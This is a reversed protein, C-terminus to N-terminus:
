SHLCYYDQFVTILPNDIHLREGHNVVTTFGNLLNKYIGWLTRLAKPVQLVQKITADNNAHIDPGWETYSRYIRNGLMPFLNFDLHDHSNILGPFALADDFVITPKDGPGAEAASPAVSVIRDKIILLDNVGSEGPFHLNTLRM